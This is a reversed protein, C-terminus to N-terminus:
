SYQSDACDNDSKTATAVGSPFFTGVVHWFPCWRADLIPSSTASTIALEGPCDDAIASWVVKGHQAISIKLLLSGEACIGASGLNKMRSIVTRLTLAQHHSLIVTTPDSSGESLSAMGYGTVTVVGGTPM